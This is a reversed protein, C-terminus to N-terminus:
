RPGTPRLSRGALAAAWADMLERQKDILEDRAGAAELHDGVALAIEVIERPFSAREAAWERFTFRLGGETQGEWLRRLLRFMAAGLQRHGAGFVFGGDSKTEELIEIVRASLPVRHERGDKMRQAPVIWVQEDMDIEDWRAGIVEDRRGVTLILFELGRAAIGKIARLETIFAAMQEFPVAAHDGVGQLKAPIPLVEDLHGHWRAPNEGDRYGRAKAWDLVDEIRRRLQSATQTRNSWIPELVMLVLGTNITAVPLNGIVPFAYTSLTTLWRATYNRGWHTRHAHM